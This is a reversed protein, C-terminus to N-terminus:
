GQLVVRPKMFATTMEQHCPHKRLFANNDDGTKDHLCGRLGPHGTSAGDRPPVASGWMTRIYCTAARAQRQLTVGIGKQKLKVSLVITIEDCIPNRYHCSAEWTLNGSLLARSSPMAGAQSQSSCHEASLSLSPVSRPRLLLVQTSGSGVTGRPARSCSNCRLVLGM